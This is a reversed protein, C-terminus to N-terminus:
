LAKLFLTATPLAPKRPLALTQRLLLNGLGQSQASVVSQGMFVAREAGCVIPWLIEQVAKARLPAPALAQGAELARGFWGPPRFVIAWRNMAPVPFGPNLDWLSSLFSPTATAALSRM